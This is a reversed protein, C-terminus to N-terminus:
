RSFFVLTGIGLLAHSFEKWHYSAEAYLMFYCWGVEAYVWESSALLASNNLSESFDNGGEVNAHLHEGECGKACLLGCLITTGDPLFLNWGRVRCKTPTITDSHMWHIHFSRITFHMVPFAYGKLVGPPEEIGRNKIIWASFSKSIDWFIFHQYSPWNM